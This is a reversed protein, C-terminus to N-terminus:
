RQCKAATLDLGGRGKFDLNTPELSPLNLLYDEDWESPPKM